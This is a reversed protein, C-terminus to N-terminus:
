SNYTGVIESLNTSAKPRYLLQKTTLHLEEPFYGTKVTKSEAKGERVLENLDDTNVSHRLGVEGTKGFAAVESPTVWKGARKSAESALELAHMVLDEKTPTM